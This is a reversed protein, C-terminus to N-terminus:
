SIHLSSKYEEYIKQWKKLHQFKEQKYGQKLMYDIIFEIDRNFRKLLYKLHDVDINYMEAWEQRTKVIGKYSLFDNSRKNNNQVKRDVWRCNKPCYDGNVDIRDIMLSDTYGSEKSWEWFNNFNNWEECIKIGRGGYNYYSTSNKILCRSRMNLWIEYLRTHRQGHKKSAKRRVEKGLCGCSRVPEAKRTLHNTPLITTCGCSCSCLWYRRGNKSYVYKQVKLRGFTIGTLDKFNSM